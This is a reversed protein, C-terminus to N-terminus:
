PLLPSWAPDSADGPTKVEFQHLGTLDISYSRTRVNKGKNLLQEKFYLLRRGNPAWSPSEIVDDSKVLTREGDGDPFMVGIFFKGGQIKTFAILDGRP